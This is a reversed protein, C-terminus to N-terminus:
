DMEEEDGMVESPADTAPVPEGAPAAGASAPAVVPIAELEEVLDSMVGRFRPMMAGALPRGPGNLQTAPDVWRGSRKLGFHLHPGTSRGTSGVFGIPDRQDVHVGARIGSAFRLLHAYFTEWGGDHRIAILNGNAGREGAFTIEGDAAAWVPTGSGAAFDIGNHPMTRHLVPHMRHPDFPSSIHDFRLPTRLWGGHMARGTEDFFEGDDGERPVFWFARLLGRRASHYEIAHVTGWRLFTGGVSESDIVVRFADGARTDTDFNMRGEFADIFVGVLTRGLGVGDLAGGLSSAVTGGRAVREIEIPVEVQRGHLVGMEDRTAEYIQTITARYEFRELTGDAAREVVLEDDPRCRRFDLVGDLATVLAEADANSLGAATLASGFGRATGFLHVTRVRGDTEHAVEIPEPPPGADPIVPGADVPPVYGLDIPVTGEGTEAEPEEDDHGSGGALFGVLGLVACAAVAIGAVMVRQRRTRELDDKLLPIGVSPLPRHTSLGTPTEDAM